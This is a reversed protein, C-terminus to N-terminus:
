VAQCLYWSDHGFRTEHYSQPFFGRFDFLHEAMEGLHMTLPHRNSLILLRSGAVPGNVTVIMRVFKIGEGLLGSAISKIGYGCGWEYAAGIM